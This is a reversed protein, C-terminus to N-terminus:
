CISVRLTERCSDLSFPAPFAASEQLPRPIWAVAYGDSQLTVMGLSREGRTLARLHPGLCPWLFSLGTHLIHLDCRFGPSKQGLIQLRSPPPPSPPAPTPTSPSTLLCKQETPSSDRIWDRRVLIHVGWCSQRSVVENGCLCQVWQPGPPVATGTHPNLIIIYQM